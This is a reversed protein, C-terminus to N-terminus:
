LQPQRLQGLLPLSPAFCSRGLISKARADLADDLVLIEQCLAAALDPRKTGLEVFRAARDGGSRGLDESLVQGPDLALKPCEPLPFVGPAKGHVQKGGHLANRDQSMGKMIGTQHRRLRLAELTPNLAQSVGPPSFGCAWEAFGSAFPTFKRRRYTLCSVISPAVVRLLILVVMVFTSSPLTATTVPPLLPIPRAVAMRKTASPACTTMVPRRWSCISM